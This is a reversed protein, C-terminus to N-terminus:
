THRYRKKDDMVLKSEWGGTAQDVAGDTESVDGDAESEGAPASWNVGRCDGSAV